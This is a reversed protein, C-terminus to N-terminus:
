PLSALAVHGSECTQCCGSRIQVPLDGNSPVHPACCMRKLLNQMDPLRQVFYWGLASSCIASKRSVARGCLCHCMLILHRPSQNCFIDAHTGLRHRYYGTWFINDTSVFIFVAESERLWRSHLAFSFHFRCVCEM